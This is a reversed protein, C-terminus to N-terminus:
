DGARWKMLSTRAHCANMGEADIDGVLGEITNAGPDRFVGPPADKWPPRPGLADDLAETLVGIYYSRILLWDVEEGLWIADALKEAAAM